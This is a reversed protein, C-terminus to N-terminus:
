PYKFGGVNIGFIMWGMKWFKFINYSDAQLNTPAINTTGQWLIATPFTIGNTGDSYLVLTIWENSDVDTFTYVPDTDTALTDKFVCSDTWAIATAGNLNFVPTKAMGFTFQEDVTVNGRFRETQSFAITSLTILLILIKKM